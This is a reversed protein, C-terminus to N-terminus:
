ERNSLANLAEVSKSHGVGAALRYLARARSLDKPVGLGSEYLQGLRYSADAVGANSAQQYYEAAKQYNPRALTGIEYANGLAMIAETSGRSAADQLYLLGRERDSEKWLLFYYGLVLSSHVDGLKAAREFRAIAEELRGELVLSRAFLGNVTPDEPYKRLVRECLVRAEPSTTSAYSSLTSAEQDASWNLAAACEAAAAKTDTVTTSPIRMAATLSRLEPASFYAAAVIAGVVIFYRVKFVTLVSVWWPNTPRDLSGPLIEGRSLYPVWYKAVFDSSFFGSHTTDFFRDKVRPHGFGFRGSSGYGWTVSKALVPWVDRMGCDNVVQWDGDKDSDLRHGYREWDFSDPIISGCLVLRHFRIDTEQELLKAVVFTGFSHAIISLSAPNRSLEDRLLRAIRRVPRDRFLSLPTLFRIVDFFEYRIPRARIREDSELIAATRQAWEGQTRIGHLLFVVHRPQNVFLVKKTSISDLQNRTSSREYPAAIDLRWIKTM